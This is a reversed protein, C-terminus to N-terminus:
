LTDGLPLKQEEWKGILGKRRQADIYSSIRVARSLEDHPLNLYSLCLRFKLDESGGLMLSRHYQWERNAVAAMMTSHSVHQLGHRTFIERCRLQLAEWKASPDLSNEPM